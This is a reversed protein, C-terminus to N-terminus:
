GTSVQMRIKVVDLPQTLARTVFGSAAGAVSYAFWPAKRDNPDYGVVM